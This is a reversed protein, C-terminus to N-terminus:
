SSLEKINLMESIIDLDYTVNINFRIVKVGSENLSFTIYKRDKIMDEDLINYDDLYVAIKPSMYTKDCILFDISKTGIRKFYFKFDYEPGVFIVDALRVKPSVCYDTNELYLQLSKYFSNERPLLLTEKKVYPSKTIFSSDYDRKDFTLDKIYPSKWKKNGKNGKNKYNYQRLLLVGFVIIIINKITDM